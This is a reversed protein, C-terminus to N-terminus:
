LWLSSIDFNLIKETRIIDEYFITNNLEKIYKLYMDRKNSFVLPRQSIIYYYIARSLAKYIKNETLVYLRRMIREIKFLSSYYYYLYYSRYRGFGRNYRKNRLKMKSPVEVDLFKFIKKLTSEYENKLQDYLVVYFNDKFKRKFFSMSESYKSM